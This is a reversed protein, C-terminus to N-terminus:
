GILLTDTINEYVKYFIEVEIRDTKPYINLVKKGIIYESEKLKNKIGKDSRKNAETLAEDKTVNFEKYGYLEKTEKILKFNLYPKDILIEKTNMSEDTDYKGILTMKGNSTEIYYHNIVKGTKLYEGYKFPITTKVLYWVEGFVKGEARVSSVIKDYKFINGSIIIEGKKVYDNIEKVVEGKSSTIHKILADKSAVIHVLSNNKVEKKLIIREALLVQYITGYRKIELWEISETNNKIIIKKIKDIEGYSKVRNYKKIGYKELENTLKDKLDINDTNISVEFITTSLLYLLILGWLFSLLFIYNKKIFTKIRNRGYYGIIKVKFEKKIIKYNDYGIIINHKGNNGEKYEYYINKKILYKLLKNKDKEIIRVLINNM